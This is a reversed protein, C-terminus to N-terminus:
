DLYQSLGISRARLGLKGERGIPLMRFQSVPEPSSEWCAVRPKHQKAAPISNELRHWGAVSRASLIWAPRPNAHSGNYRDSRTRRYVTSALESCEKGRGRRPHTGPM